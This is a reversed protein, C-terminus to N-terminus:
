FRGLFLIEPELRVGSTEEVKDRIDQIIRYIDSSTASGNNVVFGCHKVSVSAGGVSYGRLGAEDILKGAYLGEGAPRKFTSGASPLELPQKERRRRALEEMRAAIDAGDGDRLRLKASLIIRDTGKVASTRYGFSMEECTFERIRGGAPELIEVSECIDAMEGGFAGANMVLAGGLTGPIGSAFVLGDQGQDRAYVAIPVLGAGAGATLISGGDASDSRIEEFEGTLRLIVGDYGNDAVLVNSGNGLVVYPIGDEQMLNMVSLLEESSDIKLYYSACGGTRFTTHRDMPEQLLINEGPLIGALKERLRSM